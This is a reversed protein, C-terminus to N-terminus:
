RLDHRGGGFVPCALISVCSYKLSVKGLEEILMPVSDSLLKGKSDRIGFDRLIKYPLNLMSGTQKLALISDLPVCPPLPKVMATDTM